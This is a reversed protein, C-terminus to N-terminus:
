DIQDPQATTFLEPLHQNTVHRQRFVRARKKPEKSRELIPRKKQNITACRLKAKQLCAQLEQLDEPAKTERYTSIIDEDLNVAYTDDVPYVIEQQTEYNLLVYLKGEGKLTKVDDLINPYTDKLEAIPTGEPKDKLFRLLEVKGKIDYRARYEYSNNHFVVKENNRLADALEIDEILNYGPFNKAPNKSLELVDTATLPKGAKLLCDLVDKLKKNFPVQVVPAEKGTPKVEKIAVGNASGTLSKLRGGRKSEKAGEAKPKSRSQKKKDAAGGPAQPQDQKLRQRVDQLKTLLLAM